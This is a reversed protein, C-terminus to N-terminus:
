IQQGGGRRAFVAYLLSPLGDAESIERVGHWMVMTAEHNVDDSCENGDGHEDTYRCGIIFTSMIDIVIVIKENSSQRKRQPHCQAVTRIYKPIGHM